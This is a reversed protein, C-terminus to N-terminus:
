LINWNVSMNHCQCQIIINVRILVISIYISGNCVYHTAVLRQILDLRNQSGTDRRIKIAILQSATIECM